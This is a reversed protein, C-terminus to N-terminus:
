LGALRRIRPPAVDVFNDLDRIVSIDMKLRDNRVWIQNDDYTGFYSEFDKGLYRVVDQEEMPFGQSDTVYGDKYYTLEDSDYGDYVEFEEPPINYPKTSSVTIESMEKGNSDYRSSPYDVADDDDSDDWDPISDSYEEVRDNYEAEAKDAYRLRELISSYEEQSVNDFIEEDVRGAAIYNEIQEKESIEESVDDNDIVEEYEELSNKYEIYKATAFCGVTFGAAFLLISRFKNNM